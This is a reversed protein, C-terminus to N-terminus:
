EQEKVRNKLQELESKARDLLAKEEAKKQILSKYPM